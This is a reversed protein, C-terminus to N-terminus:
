AILFGTGVLCGLATAAYVIRFPLFQTQNDSLEFTAMFGFVYFAAAALLLLSGLINVLPKM